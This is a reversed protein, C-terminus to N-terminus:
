FGLLQCTVFMLGVGGFLLWRMPGPPIRAGGSRGGRRLRLGRLRDLQAALADVDATWHHPSFVLIQQEMLEDLPPPLRLKALERPTVGGVLVPIVPIGRELAIGIERRVWDKPDALEGSREVWREGIVVVMAKCSRAAKEIQDHFSGIGLNQVDRFVSDAGFREALDRALTMSYGEASGGRRYSVFIKSM